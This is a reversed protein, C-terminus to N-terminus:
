RKMGKRKKFVVPPATASTEAKVPPASGDVADTLIAAEDQSEERKIAPVDVDQSTVDADTNRKKKAVAVSLLADLDEDDDAAGPYAKFTAGWGRRTPATGLEAEDEDDAKRKRVGVNLAAPKTDPEEKVAEEKVHAEYIPRESVVTWEGTMAAEKRYDEPVVVGLAALQGLQRKREETYASNKGATGATVGASGGKAAVLGNLRAVEDKARQKEREEREKDKHITRLSRQINNQHRPTSDHQRKELTTDKVYTKCFKCWYKPISKWFESM